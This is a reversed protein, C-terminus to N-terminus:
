LLENLSPLQGSVELFHLGVSVVGLVLGIAARVLVLRFRWIGEWLSRGSYFIAVASLLLLLLLASVKFLLCALIALVLGYNAGHGMNTRLNEDEEIEGEVLPADDAVQPQETSDTASSSDGFQRWWLRALWIFTYLLVAFGGVLVLIGLLSSSIATPDIMPQPM